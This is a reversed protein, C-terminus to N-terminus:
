KPDSTSSKKPNQKLLRVETIKAQVQAFYGMKLLAFLM